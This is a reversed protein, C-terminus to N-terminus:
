VMETGSSSGCLYLGPLHARYQGAGPSPAITASRGHDFAGILLDGERMNPLGREVDLPSRIFADIVADVLNPAHRGLAAAARPRPRRWRPGLERSRRRPSLAGEGM